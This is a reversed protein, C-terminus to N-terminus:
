SDHWNEFFIAFAPGSGGAFHQFYGDPHNGTVSPIYLVPPLHDGAYHLSICKFRSAQMCYIANVVVWLAVPAKTEGPAPATRITLSHAQRRVAQKQGGTGCIILSYYSASPM